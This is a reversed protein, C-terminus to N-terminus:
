DAASKSSHAPSRDRPNGYRDPFPPIPRRLQPERSRALAVRPTPARGSTSLSLAKQVLHRVALTAMMCAWVLYGMFHTDVSHIFEKPTIEFLAFHRAPIL